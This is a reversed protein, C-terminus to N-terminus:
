LGCFKVLMEYLAGGPLIIEFRKGAREAVLHIPPEAEEKREAAVAKASEPKAAKEEERVPEESVKDCSVGQRLDKIRGSIVSIIPYVSSPKIGLKIGIEPAEFQRHESNIGYYLEAVASMQTGSRMVVALEEATVNAPKRERAMEEEKNECEVVVSRKKVNYHCIARPPQNVTKSLAQFDPIEKVFHAKIKLMLKKEIQRISEHTVGWLEGLEGLSLPEESLIRYDLIEREKPKIKARFSKLKERVLSEIQRESLLDESSKCESPIFNGLGDDSGDNVPADLSTESGNLRREMEIIKRDPLGTKQALLEISPDFGDRVLKEKEKNLLFFLKRQSQSTGIRVLCWNEMMYRLICAKIWFSAYYSFRIGRKPDFKPVAQVLGLNGEQILDLLNNTWIHKYNFVIRIVLRLNCVVLAKGAEEDGNEKCRIALAIQEDPSLLKHKGVERLYQKLSDYGGKGDTKVSEAEPM